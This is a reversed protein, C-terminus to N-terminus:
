ILCIKTIINKPNIKFVVENASLFNSNEVKLAENDKDLTM